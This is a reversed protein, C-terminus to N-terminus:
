FFIGSKKSEAIHKEKKISEVKAAKALVPLKAAVEAAKQVAAEAKKSIDELKSQQSKAAVVLIIFIIFNFSISKSSLAAEKKKAVEEAKAVAIKQKSALADAKNSEVEAAKADAEVM